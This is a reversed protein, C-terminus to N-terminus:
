LLDEYEGTPQAAAKSSPPAEPAATSLKSAAKSAQPAATSLKSAVKSAQEKLAEAQAKAAELQKDLDKQLGGLDLSPMALEPVKPLPLKSLEPMSIAPLALGAKGFLNMSSGGKTFTAGGLSAAALFSLFQTAGLVNFPGPPLGRARTFFSTLSWAVVAFVVLTAFGEAAGYVGNPGAPVGKGTTLVLYTSYLSLPIYPLVALSVALAGVAGSPTGGDLVRGDDKQLGELTEELKRQAERQLRTPADVADAVQRQVNGLASEMSGLADEVSARLRLPQREAGTHRAQVAVGVFGRAGVLCGAAVGLAATRRWAARRRPQRCLPAGGM